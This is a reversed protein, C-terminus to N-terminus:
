IGRDGWLSFLSISLWWFKALRFWKSINSKKYYKIQCLGWLPPHATRGNKWFKRFNNKWWIKAVEDFTVDAFNRADNSQFSILWVWNKPLNSWFSKQRAGYKWLMIWFAFVFNKMKMANKQQKHLNMDMKMVGDYKRRHLNMEMISIFGWQYMYQLNSQGHTKMEMISFFIHLQFFFTFFRKLQQFSDKSSKEINQTTFNWRRLIWWQLIAHTM